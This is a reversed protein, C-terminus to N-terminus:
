KLSLTRQWGHAQGGGLIVFRDGVADYAQLGQRSFVPLKEKLADALHLVHQTLIRRLDIGFHISLRAVSVAFGDLPDSAARAPILAVYGALGNFEGLSM